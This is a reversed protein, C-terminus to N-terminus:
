STGDVYGIGISREWIAIAEESKKAHTLMHVKGDSRTVIFASSGYIQYNPDGTELFRKSQIYLVWGYSRERTARDAVVRREDEDHEPRYVIAEVIRKAEKYDVPM